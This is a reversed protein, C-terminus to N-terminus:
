KGGWRGLMPEMSKRVAKKKKMDEFLVAGGITTM